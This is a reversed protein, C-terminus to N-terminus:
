SKVSTLPKIDTKPFYHNLIQRFEYNYRPGALTEAGTQCMGIGHGYGKGNLEVIGNDNIQLSFLTSKVQSYGLIKRLMEGSIQAKENEGILDLKLVRGSKSMESVKIEKIDSIQAIKNDLLKKSLDSLSFSYSWLRIDKDNPNNVSQLYPINDGFVEAFSQTMGGADASYYVRALEGNYSIVLGKTERVAQNTRSNESDVGKYVQSMVTDCVNYGYESFKLKNRIAYTRAAVAQAKLAEMHWHSPMECPVVGCLYNELDIINVVRLKGNNITIDFKGRYRKQPKNPSTITTITNMNNPVIRLKVGSKNEIGKSDKYYLENDKLFITVNDNKKYSSIKDSSEGNYLAFDNSCSFSISTISSYYRLLGVRLIYENNQAASININILFLFFILYIIQKSNM